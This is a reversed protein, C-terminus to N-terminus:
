KKKEDSRPKKRTVKVKKAPKEQSNAIRENFARVVQKYHPMKREILDMRERDLQMIREQEKEPDYLMRQALLEEARDIDEDTLGPHVEKLEKRLNPHLPEM